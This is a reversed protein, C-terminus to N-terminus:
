GALEDVMEFAAAYCIVFDDTSAGVVDGFLKKLESVAAIKEQTAM